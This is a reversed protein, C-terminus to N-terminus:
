NDDFYFGKGDRLVKQYNGNWLPQLVLDGDELHVGCSNERILQIDPGPQLGHLGMVQDASVYHNQGDILTTIRGGFVFVRKYRSLTNPGVGRLRDKSM